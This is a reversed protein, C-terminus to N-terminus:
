EEIAIHIVADGLRVSGPQLVEATIGGHGRLANYGGAGLATEMLSCPACIGTGKFIATGVSFTQDRLALLNIGSVLINRRLIEAALDDFGALSAIVPLHESQLLTVARKGPTQRRDGELGTETLAVQDLTIMPARRAPRVGIWDVRGSRPFTSLLDKLRGAVM